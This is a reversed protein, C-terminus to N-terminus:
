RIIKNFSDNKIFGELFETALDTYNEAGMSDPAHSIISNGFSPAESLRVNRKIVTDFVERGFYRRVENAVSKSLQLRSDYLTLLVGIIQLNPNIKQKVLQVTELLRSVGEMAYYECQVPILLSDAAAFANVTLLGLAPPCDILIFDYDLSVPELLEALKKERGLFSAMEIEAGSLSIHSPLLDFTTDSDVFVTQIASIVDIKGLLVEYISGDLSGLAAGCGGTANAQPDLDVLLIKLGKVSLSAALNVATTTKGVGGKQNGIAVINSM